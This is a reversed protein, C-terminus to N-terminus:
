QLGEPLDVILRGNLLDVEIIVEEIAPILLENGESEVVYVDNSGTQLVASLTGLPKGEKTQVSLGILQFQYYEGSPLVPLREKDVFLDEGTLAEAQERSAIEAFQAIWGRKQPRIDVLTLESQTGGEALYLKEGAEIEGLTEGYPLLKLAGRVGHAKAVKGVAVLFAKDM